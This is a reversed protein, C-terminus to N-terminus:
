DSKGSTWHSGIINGIEPGKLLNEPIMCGMRGKEENGDLGAGFAPM